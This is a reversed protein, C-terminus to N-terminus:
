RESVRLQRTPDWDPFVVRYSTYRPIDELAFKSMNKQLSVPRHRRDPEVGAAMLARLMHVHSGGLGENGLVVRLGYCQHIGAGFGVGYRPLGNTPSPRRPNYENADEGFVDKSRNAFVYEVHIEQDKHVVEDGIPFEEGAVRCVYPSFPARMRITESLCDMLFDADARFRLDEPHKAFWGQLLEVTQVVSQTSTGVSAAFMMTSEVIAREEDAYAPEARTVIFKLLCPPVSDDSRTGTEVETMMAKFADRSPIFFEDIYRQKAELAIRNIESRNELFGSSTGAAIPGACSRLRDVADDSDVNILGILKATFRLFVRECFDVLDFGYFGDADPEALRMRMLRDVEPLILQERIFTLQDPRVLQNLLKRRFRHEQGHLYIMAGDLFERINIAGNVPDEALAAFQEPKHLIAPSRLTTVLPDMERLHFVPCPTTKTQEEADAM